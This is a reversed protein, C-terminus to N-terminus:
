WIKHRRLLVAVVAPAEDELRMLGLLPERAIPPMGVSSPQARAHGFPSAHRLPSTKEGEKSCERFAVNVALVCHPVWVHVGDGVVTTRASVERCNDYVGCQECKTSVQTGGAQAM